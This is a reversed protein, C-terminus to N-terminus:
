KVIVGHFPKKGESLGRIIAAKLEQASKVELTVSDVAGILTVKYGPAKATQAEANTHTNQM